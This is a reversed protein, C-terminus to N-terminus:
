LESVAAPHRMYIQEANDFCVMNSLVPGHLSEKVGVALFGKPAMKNYISILADCAGKKTFYLMSNRFIVISPKKVFVHQIFHHNHCVITGLFDSKLQLGQETNDFYDLLAGKTGFRKFNNENIDINKAKLVGQKIEQLKVNSQHNCHIEYSDLLGMEFLLILLTFIEEGSSSDPFWIIGKSEDSSLVKSRLSRWFSPDRFLESTPVALNYYFKDVFERDSLNEIFIETKKINMEDFLLHLRRKLFSISILTYDFGLKETLSEVMSKLDNIGLSIAM